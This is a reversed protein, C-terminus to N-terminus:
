TSQRVILPAAVLIERPQVTSGRVRALLARFAAEAILKAPQSITTLQPTFIRACVDDDFGVVAVDEPVRFGLRTLSRIMRIAYEDNGCVIADPADPRAMLRRVKGVNDPAVGIVSDDDWRGGSAIVEGAVGTLRNRRNVSPPGSVLFAIRRRGTALLHAAIRRGADVNNIGIVDLDSREPSQVIDCDILVIPVGADKLIRVVEQNVKRYRNDVMPRFIVGEVRRKAFDQAFRKVLAAKEAAPASSVDGLLVSYGFKEGVLVVENAFRQFVQAFTIEPMLLGILGTCRNARETIFAVAGKRSAIIGKLHLQELAHRITERAVGFRRALTGASPLKGADAYKGAAIEGSLKEAITRYVAETMIRRKGQEVRVIRLRGYPAAM